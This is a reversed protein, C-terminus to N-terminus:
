QAPCSSPTADDGPKGAPPLPPDFVPNMQKQAEAANPNNGPEGAVPPACEDGPVAVHHFAGATGPVALVSAVALVGILRKM